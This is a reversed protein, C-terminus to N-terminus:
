ARPVLKRAPNAMSRARHSRARQTGPEPDIHPVGFAGSLTALTEHLDRIVAAFPSRVREVLGMQRYVQPEGFAATVLSESGLDQIAVDPVVAAGLGAKVCPVIAAITDIEAVENLRLGQRALETDILYALPVSSRFRLFPLSELIERGSGPPTGPPAIVLLPERIFPSWRLERPMAVHEAVVAVDLRRAVVDALFPETLGVRLKMRLEPYRRQMTVIARPLLSFASTRVSGVNLTGVPRRGSIADIAEEATQLLKQAADVMQLGHTNLVSRRSARDFLSVGLEVELANMQQSVASPTLHVVEAARGFTGCEAVAL